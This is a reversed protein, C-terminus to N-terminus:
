WLRAYTKLWENKDALAYRLANALQREEAQQVTRLDILLADDEIRAVVPADGHRLSAEIRAVSQGNGPQIRIL